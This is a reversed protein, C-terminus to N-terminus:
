EACTRIRKNASTRFIISKSSLKKTTSPFFSENLNSKETMIQNLTEEIEAYPNKQEPYAFININKSHFIYSFKRKRLKNKAKSNNFKFDSYITGSNKIIRYVSDILSKSHKEPEENLAKLIKTFFKFSHRTRMLSIPNLNM